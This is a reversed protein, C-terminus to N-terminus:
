NKLTLMLHKMPALKQNPWRLYFKMLFKNNAQTPKAYKDYIVKIKNNIEHNLGDVLPDDYNTPRAVIEGCGALVLSLTLLGTLKKAKNQMTVSEEKM